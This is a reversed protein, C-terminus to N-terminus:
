IVEIYYDDTSEVPEWAGEHVYNALALSMVCDDFCGEEAQMAGTETVIYSIMERITTKDNLEIEGERMSARLQDIILPKSKTTTTFGLKVTERDTIKDHQIETYFNPYSFDKGLRTCTLIGHSNNEVCIYAMNYYKGLAYLIEAMYDPHVHGRWTAVQRKKSDLVQAVSYDGNRIGMAIDAGLVYQEGEDHKRYVTLEGRSNDVFEDGELALRQEIDRTEDILKTLQDPNFVPRGTTLFAEDPESPYEQRFLDFGNQAIKQRRFNLQENDLNYKKALDKEEPTREFRKKTTIPVRYEPDTFWPIFVPIFGNSGDIAGRWLDYFIGTLGNATSEIFIATNPTNPVAQVLGNFNEKATTKNWFALESAHVHSLTEGRGVAESGATSVVFSSNLQDFSLERRSSYKTNPKLIDPCNEHFRKTMDFLARTSDAHHTIVMAKRARNQSVNFYLYGGVYTSLGQQRAKLIIIRIKKEAKLQKDVAKQLIKQAPNLKLNTIEGLKTRIKLSAKSYFPFDNYLKKRVKLLRKDM